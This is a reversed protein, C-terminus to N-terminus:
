EAKAPTTSSATVPTMKLVVSEKDKTQLQSYFTRLEPYDKTAFIIEGMLFARRTTFSTPTSDVSITYLARKDMPYKDGKPIAEVEFGQKFTIRLADQISQPYEFDVATERKEQSFKATSASEFLDAPMVLRKGTAAGLTGNVEYSVQLPQEYTDVNKVDVVKVELSHPVYAELMERLKDKLSQEDGRLAVHRWRLAEAGTFTMDIKGTIQGHEDMQLNAVRTTHNTAYGDGSTDGFATGGDVQRLGSSFMHPWALHSYACYRSGPDFYLDKGDVNVVAIVNDLQSMNLWGATFFHETRDPVLMLYAKIGASRAMAVFLATLQYPSGRGTKLVDSVTNVTHQEGKERERTYSTNELSMVKAYIKHLKEDPTNAGSIVSKTGDNLDGNQKMFADTHKSWEKGQSKWYDERSNFATSSFLVRYSYSKIPPMYDEEVTPPIDNVTLEYTHEEPNMNSGSPKTSRKISAGAPLIPFWAISNIPREESDILDKSTPHWVYHAAKVYLDGQIYWQPDEFMNDAIRTAYRYEIISGVEVDPLTFVKSLFKIGRVKEVTKEYPKGTFPIVTGDPHITRGQIEGLSKDNSGFELDDNTRVFPLDVNAYKKGDETLIKIRYYHQVVHMDDTTIEEKFLVVASAGPYGPLSTMSLEEATPKQFTDSAKGTASAVVMLALAAVVMRVASPRKAQVYDAKSYKM